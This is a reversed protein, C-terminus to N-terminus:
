ERLHNQIFDEDIGVWGKVENDKIFDAFLYKKDECLKFWTGSYFENSHNSYYVM